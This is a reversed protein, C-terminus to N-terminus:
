VCGRRVHLRAVDAEEKGYARFNVVSIQFVHIPTLIHTSTLFFLLTLIHYASDPLQRIPYPEPTFLITPLITCGFPLFDDFRDIAMCVSTSRIHVFYHLMVLWAGERLRHGYWREFHDQLRKNIM